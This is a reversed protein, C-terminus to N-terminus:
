PGHSSHIPHMYPTQTFKTYLAAIYLNALVDHTNVSHQAAHNTSIWLRQYVTYLINRHKIRHYSKGTLKIEDTTRNSILLFIFIVCLFMSLSLLSFFLVFESSLLYCLTQFFFIFACFITKKTQFRARRSHTYFKRFFFYIYM